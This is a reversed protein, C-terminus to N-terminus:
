SKVRYDKAIVGTQDSGVACSSVWTTQGSPLHRIHGRRMHFRPSRHGGSTGGNHSSSRKGTIALVRYEFRLLRKKRRGLGATDPPSVTEIDINNCELLSNMASLVLWARHALGKACRIIESEDESLDTAFREIEAHDDVRFGGGTSATSIEVWGPTTKWVSEGFIRVFIFVKVLDIGTRKFLIAFEDEDTHGEVTMLDFPLRLHEPPNEDYFDVLDSVQGFAFKVSQELDACAQKIPELTYGEYCQLAKASLGHINPNKYTITQQSM